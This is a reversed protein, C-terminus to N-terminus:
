KAAAQRAATIKARLVEITSAGPIMQQGIIIAPTGAIDLEEALAKTRAIEESVKESKIAAAFDSESIGAQKALSTLKEIDFKGPTKMLTAHFPFYKEPAIAHVALAARAALESDESLIPLEKFVVKLNKDQEVLESIIPYFRKCYGCHYDFFEVLTVDGNKNGFVPSGESNKLKEQQEASIKDRKQYQKLSKLIVDPHAMIYKEIIADTVPADEAKAISIVSMSFLAACLFYALQRKM